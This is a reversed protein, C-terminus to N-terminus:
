RKLFKYDTIIENVLRKDQNIFNQFPNATKLVGNTKAWYISRSMSFCLARMVKLELTVKKLLADRKEYDMLVNNGEKLIFDSVESILNIGRSKLQRASDEAFLFLYPETRSLEIMENSERVIDTSIQGIQKLIIGSKLAQNVETLSRHILNQVLVVSSINLAIDDIQNNINKLYNAHATESSYRMLGNENVIDFHNRDFIVTQASCLLGTQCLILIILIKM